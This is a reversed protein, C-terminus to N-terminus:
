DIKIWLKWFKEIWFVLLTTDDSRVTCAIADTLKLKLMCIEQFIIQVFNEFSLTRHVDNWNYIYCIWISHIILSIEPPRIHHQHVVLYRGYLDFFLSSSIVCLFCEFISISLAHVHIDSKYPSGFIYWHHQHHPWNRHVGDAVHAM